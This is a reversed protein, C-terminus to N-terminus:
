LGSTGFLQQANQTTKEILTKSDLQYCECVKELIYKLYSPENRKGRFPSPSLYPADTELVISEIPIEHLIKDLGGNKYTVVGGIGIKFGLDIAKKAQDLSGTFCHFVGRLSPQYHKEIIEYVDNFSERTHLVIPLNYGIAWLIQNELAKIQEKIFQKSWHYDLGIEGIAYFSRKELQAKMWKLETKYDKTVSCPHLGMMLKIQNPFQNELRYMSDIHKSSICPLFFEKVRNDNARKIVQTIDHDFEKLYLHAHTDVLHM